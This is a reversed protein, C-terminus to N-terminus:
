AKPGRPLTAGPGARRRPWPLTRRWAKAGKSIWASISCKLGCHTTKATGTAERHPWVTASKEGGKIVASARALTKKLSHRARSAYTPSAASRDGNGRQRAFLTRAARHRVKGRRGAPPATSM